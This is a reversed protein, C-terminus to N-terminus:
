SYIIITHRTCMFLSLNLSICLYSKGLTVSLAIRLHVIGQPTAMHEWLVTPKYPLVRLASDEGHAFIELSVMLPLQCLRELVASFVLMVPVQQSLVDLDM